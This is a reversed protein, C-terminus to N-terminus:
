LKGGDRLREFLLPALQKMRRRPAVSSSRRAKLLAAHFERCAGQGQPEAPLQFLGISYGVMPVWLAPPDLELASVEDLIGQVAGDALAEVPVVDPEECFARRYLERATSVAGERFALDGLLSLSLGVANGKAAAATLSAKARELDGADIWHQGVLRGAVELAGQQEAAQAVRRHLGRELAARLSPTVRSADFIKAFRHTLAALGELDSELEAARAALPPLHKALYRAEGLDFRQLTEDALRGASDFRGEAMAEEVKALRATRSAFLGLQNPEPRAQATPPQASLEGALGRLGLHLARHWLRARAAAKEQTGEPAYMEQYREVASAFLALDDAHLMPSSLMQACAHCLLVRAGATGLPDIAVTGEQFSEAPVLPRSVLEGEDPPSNCLACRHRGKGTLKKDDPM